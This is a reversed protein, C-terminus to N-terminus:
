IIPTGSVLFLTQSTSDPDKVRRRRRWRHYEDRGLSNEM